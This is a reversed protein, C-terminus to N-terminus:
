DLSDISVRSYRPLRRLSEWDQRKFPKARRVLKQSPYLLEDVMWDRDEVNHQMCSRVVSSISLGM